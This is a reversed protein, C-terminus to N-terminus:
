NVTSSVSAKFSSLFTCRPSGQCNLLLSDVQWHQVCLNSGQWSFIWCSLSCILQHVTVRSGHEPAWPGCSSFGAHGLAWAGCSLQWWLSFSVRQLLLCDGRLLLSGACGFIFSYYNKLHVDQWINKISEILLLQYWGSLFPCILKSDSKISLYWYLKQRNKGRQQTLVCKVFEAVSTLLM